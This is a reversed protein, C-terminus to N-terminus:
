KFLLKTSTGLGIKSDIEMTAGLADIFERIIQLGFGTGKEGSTGSASQYNATFLASIQEKSMGVGEDTVKIEVKGGFVGQVRIAGNETFKISNQVLNRLIFSLMNRDTKLTLSPDVDNILNNKKSSAAFKLNEFVDQVLEYVNVEVLHLNKNQLQHSGWDLLDELLGRTQILNDIAAPSIDKMEQLSLDGRNLMEMLSQLGGIPGRLDHGIISLIQDKSRNLDILEENQKKIQIHSGQIERNLKILQTRANKQNKFNRYIAILAIMGLLTALTIGIILYRQFSIRQNAALNQQEQWKNLDLLNSNEEQLISLEMYRLQASRKETRLSDTLEHGFRNNKYAEEFAGLEFQVKALLDYGDSLYFISSAVEPRKLFDLLATEAEKAKGMKLSCEYIGLDISALDALSVTEKFIIAAENYYELAADYDGMEVKLDGLLGYAFALDTKGDSYVQAIRIVREALAKCSDYREVNFYTSSLNGLSLVVLGTDNFEHAMKLSREFYSFAREYDEVELFLTGLNNFIYHSDKGHWESSEYIRIGEYYHFLAKDIKGLDCLINGLNNHADSIDWSDGVDQYWELGKQGYLFATDLDGRYYYATSLSIYAWGELSSDPFSRLSKLAKKAFYLASDTNVYWYDESTYILEEIKNFEPQVKGNDGSQAWLNNSAILGIILVFTKFITSKVM